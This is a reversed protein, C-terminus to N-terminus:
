RACFILARSSLRGSRHLVLCRCRDFSDLVSFAWLADRSVRLLRRMPVVDARGLEGRSALELVM